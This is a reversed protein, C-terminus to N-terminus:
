CIPSRGSQRSYLPSSPSPPSAGSWAWRWRWCGPPSGSGSPPSTSWWAMRRSPAPPWPRLYTRTGWGGKNYIPQVLSQFHASWFRADVQQPRAMASIGPNSFQALGWTGWPSGGEPTHLATPSWPQVERCSQGCKYKVSWYMWVPLGQLPSGKLDQSFSFLFEFVIDYICKQSM